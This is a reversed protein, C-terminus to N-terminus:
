STLGPVTLLQGPLLLDPDAGIVDRNATYWRQWSSALQAPSARPNAAAALGWLTDGPVVAHTTDPSTATSTDPSTPTPAAPAPTAPAPTASAAPSATPTPTAPAAAPAQSFPRDLDFFSFEAAAVVPAPVPAFAPQTSALAAGSPGVALAVGLAAELFRRGARPTIIRVAREAVQGAATHTRAALILATVAFLWAALCWALLAAAAVLAREPDASVFTWLGKAPWDSRQPRLVVLVVGYGALAMFVSLRRM